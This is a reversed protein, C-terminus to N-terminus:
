AASAGGLDVAHYAASGAERGRVVRLGALPGNRETVVTYQREAGRDDSYIVVWDRSHGLAHARATNSYLATFRHGRRATHLVPLWREGTPNFRRPAIRPLLGAEANARYERDIDLLEAVTPRAGNGNGGGKEKGQSGPARSSRWRRLRGALADQIGAVRKAGFGPLRALDGRQAAVELAELTTIGLEDKLRHALTPGVGPVTRLVAIPDHGARLRNLVTSRGTELIESITWALGPGIGPLDDIGKPGKEDLVKWLPCDLEDVANIARRYALARFPDDGRQDLLDAAERLVALIRQNDYRIPPLMRGSSRRAKWQTAM